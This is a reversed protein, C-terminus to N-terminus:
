GTGILPASAMTVACVRQVCFAIVAAWVLVSHMATPAAPQKGGQRAIPSGGTTTPPLKM